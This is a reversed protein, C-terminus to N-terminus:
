EAMTHSIVLLEVTTKAGKEPQFCVGMHSLPSFGLHFFDHFTHAYICICAFNLVSLDIPHTHLASIILLLSNYLMSKFYDCLMNLYM